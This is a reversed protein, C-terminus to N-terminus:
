CPSPPARRRSQTRRAPSFPKLPPLRGRSPDVLPARTDPTPAPAASVPPAEDTPYAFANKLDEEDDVANRNTKGNQTQKVAAERKAELRAELEKAAREQEEQRALRRQELAADDLGRDAPEWAPEREKAPNAAKARTAKAAVPPPAAQEEFLEEEFEEEEEDESARAVTFLDRNDLRTVTKKEKKKAQPVEKQPRLAAEARRAQLKADLEKARREEEALRALRKQEMAEEEARLRRRLEEEEARLLV